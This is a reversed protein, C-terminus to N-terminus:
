GVSLKAVEHACDIFRQAALSLARNKLTIIAIPRKGTVLKIPLAKVTPKRTESGLVFAPLITLFPGSAVLAYRAPTSSTIVVADPVALGAADFVEQVLAGTLSDSPPLVWPEHM